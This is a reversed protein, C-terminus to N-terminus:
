HCYRSLFTCPLTVRFPHLKWMLSTAKQASPGRRARTNQTYHEKLPQQGGCRRWQASCNSGFLPTVKRRKWDSLPLVSALLRECSGFDVAVAESIFLLTTPSSTPYSMNLLAERRKWLFIESSNQLKSDAPIHQWATMQCSAATLKILKLLGSSVRSFLSVLGSLLHNTQTVAWLSDPMTRRRHHCALKWTPKM